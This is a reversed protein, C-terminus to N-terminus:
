KKSSKRSYVNITRAKEVLIGNKLAKWIIYIITKGSRTFVRIKDTQQIVDYVEKPLKIVLEVEEQNIIKDSDM